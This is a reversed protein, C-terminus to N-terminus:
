RSHRKSLANCNGRDLQDCSNSCQGIITPPHLWMNNISNQIERNLIDIYNSADLALKKPRCYLMPHNRVVLDANACSYGVGVGYIYSKFWKSEKVKDYDRMTVEARSPIATIMTILCIVITPFMLKRM